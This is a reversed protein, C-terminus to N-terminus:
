TSKPIEKGPYILKSNPNYVIWNLDKLRHKLNSLTVGLEDAMAYLHKWNTLDRGNKKNILITKPMLLCSAFYQAQWEIGQQYKESRCLFPLIEMEVGQNIYDRFQGVKNHDIHLIWHGIEHAITSQEFGGELTSISNNIIIERQTPLIMAAIEGNADPEINEWVVGLDLFDATTAAIDRPNIRRSRKAQVQHLLDEAKKEIVEKDYWQFPKIVNM